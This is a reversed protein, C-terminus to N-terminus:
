RAIGLNDCMPGVPVFIRGTAEDQVAFIADGYFEIEQAELVVTPDNM